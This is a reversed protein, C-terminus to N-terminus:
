CSQTPCHWSQLQAASISLEAGIVFCFKELPTPFALGQIWWVKVYSSLSSQFFRMWLSWAGCARVPRGLEEDQARVFHGEKSEMPILSQQTPYGWGVNRIFTRALLFFFQKCNFSLYFFGLTQHHRHPTVWVVLKEMLDGCNWQEDWCPYSGNREQTSQLSHQSHISSDILLSQISSPSGM